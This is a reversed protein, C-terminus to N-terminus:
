EAPMYIGDDRVQYGADELIRKAGEMGEEPWKKVDENHWFELVPSTPSHAPIAYDNWIEKAIVDKPIVSAMAGRVAPDDLPEVTTNMSWEDYGVSNTRTMELHDNEEVAQELADTQIASARIVFDIDKNKAGTLMASPNPVSRLFAEEINPPAVPHDPNAELLIGEGKRWEVFRYPGSGVLGVDSQTPSWQFPKEVGVSEPIDQWVHQPLIHVRALTLMLIPAFPEKLNISIQYEGNKSVSEIPDVASSFFPNEYEKLFEFTFKVDDATLSEGDHFAFDERLPVTLTTNDDSVNVEKALWPEPLGEPSVRMLRDHVMRNTILNSENAQLPTIHPIELPFAATLTTKDGKPTVGTWTWINKLGLGSVEVFGEFDDVNTVNVLQDHQIPMEGAPLEMAKAQVEKIIAQRDDRDIIRAQEELLSDIEEQGFGTWNYNGEAQQSSHYNKFLLMHPDLRNPRGTYGLSTIDYNQEFYTKTLQRERNMGQYQLDFGLETCRETILQLTDHTNKNSPPYGVVTLQPVKEGVAADSDSDSGSGTDGDGGDGGSGGDSDNSGSCGAISALAGTLGVVGAKRLFGRRDESRQDDGKPPDIYTM